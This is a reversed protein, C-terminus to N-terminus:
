TIIIHTVMLSKLWDTDVNNICLLVSPVISCVLILIPCYKFCFHKKATIKNKAKKNDKKM